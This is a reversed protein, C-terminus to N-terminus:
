LRDPAPWGFDKRMDMPMAALEKDAARQRRWDALCRLAVAPKTVLRTAICRMVTWPARAAIATEQQMVIITM